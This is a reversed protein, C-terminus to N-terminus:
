TDSGTQGPDDAEGPLPLAVQAWCVESKQMAAIVWRVDGPEYGRTDNSRDLSIFRASAGPAVESRPSAVPLSIRFAGHGRVRARPVADPWALPYAAAARM